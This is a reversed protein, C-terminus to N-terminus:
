ASKMAKEIIENVFATKSETYYERNSQHKEALQRKLAAYKAADDAHARLYDRFALYKQLMECEPMMHVHHTRMGMFKDRKVFAMHNHYWVYEWTPCNLMPLIRHKAELFSPVVVLIDIIPKAPMGPISTSGHHEIRLLIDTGLQKYLSNSFATFKQPWTPDYDVLHISDDNGPQNPATYMNVTMSFFRQVPDSTGSWESPVLVTFEGTVSRNCDSPSEDRWLWTVAEQWIVINKGNKADLVTLNLDELVWAMMGDPINEISNVEIGLFTIPNEDDTLYEFAVYRTINGTNKVEKPLRVLLNNYFSENDVPGFQIGGILQMKASNGM